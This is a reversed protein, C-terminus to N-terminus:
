SLVGPMFPTFNTAHSHFIPKLSSARSAFFLISAPTWLPPLSNSPYSSALKGVPQLTGETLTVVSDAIDLGDEIDLGEEAPLSTSPGNAATPPANAPATALRHIQIMENGDLVQGRRRHRHPRRPTHPQPLEPFDLVPGDDGDDLGIGSDAAFGLCFKAWESM